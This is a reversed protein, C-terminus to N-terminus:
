DGVIVFDGQVFIPVERGDFTIGTINTDKAGIMFDIHISSDNFHDLGDELVCSGDSVSRGLALHCSANEDILTTYYVLGSMSIPTHYGVLAVEGLYCSGDDTNITSRLMEEGYPAYVNVIKGDKFDLEFYPIKKGGILLPKTTCVHGNIKYKDPTTYIEETPLNYMGYFDEDGEYFKSNKTLGVYLDTGNSSTYHLTKLNLSDIKKGLSHIRSIKNKWNVLPDSDEDILCLKFLVDWFKDLVVSKDDDPFIAEAWRQNPVIAICWQSKNERSHARMINRLDDIHKFIAHGIDDNVDDFLYPYESELRITVCDGDLYSNYQLKEYDKVNVIEDRTLYKSKILSSQMDLYCINVDSAGLKFCEDMVIDAFWYNEIASEIMVKQGKGVNMGVKALANAYKRILKDNM